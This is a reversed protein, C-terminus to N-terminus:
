FTVVTFHSSCVFLAEHGKLQAMHHFTQKHVPALCFQKIITLKLNAEQVIKALAVATSRVACLGAFVNWHVAAANLSKYKFFNNHWIIFKRQEETLIIKALKIIVTYLDCEIETFHSEPNKVLHLQVYIINTKVLGTFVLLEIIKISKKVYNIQGGTSPAWTM